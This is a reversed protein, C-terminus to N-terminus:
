AFSASITLSAFRIPTEFPFYFQVASRVPKLASHDELPAPAGGIGRYSLGVTPRASLRIFPCGVSDAPQPFTQSQKPPAKKKQRYALLCACCRSIRSATM